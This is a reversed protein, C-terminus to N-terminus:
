REAAAHKEMFVSLPDARYAGFPGREHYGLNRYLGLAEPQKVGTELRFLDIGRRQLESEIYEMIRRSLGRGRFNDLVFVRKIEAYRGDDDMIKAAGTAVLEAGLRECITGTIETRQERSGAAIKVKMLEHHALSLDIERLVADTLGANGITVVPKLAHGRTRLARKHKEDLPM